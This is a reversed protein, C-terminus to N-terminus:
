IFDLQDGPPIAPAGPISFKVAKGSPQVTFNGNWNGERDSILAGLEPDSYEQPQFRDFYKKIFGM